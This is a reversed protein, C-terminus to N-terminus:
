RKEVRPKSAVVLVRWSFLGWLSRLMKVSALNREVQSLAGMIRASGSIPSRMYSGSLPYALFDHLSTSLATFGVTELLAQARPATFEEKHALDAPSEYRDFNIVAKRLITTVATATPEYMVLEGGPRLVRLIERFAVLPDLFHHAAGNCVVRDFAQNGYPLAESDGVTLKLTHGATAAQRISNFAIDLGHLRYDDQRGLWALLNGVGCGIDLLCHGRQLHLADAIRAFQQELVLRTGPRGYAQQQLLGGETDQWRREDNKIESSPADIV